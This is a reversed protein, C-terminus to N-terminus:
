QGITRIIYTRGHILRYIFILFNIILIGIIGLLSFSYGVYAPIFLKKSKLSEVFCLRSKKTDGSLFYMVGLRFYGVHVYNYRLFLDYHKKFIYEMDKIKIFKDTLTKTANYSHFYYNFLPEYVFDIDFGAKCIRIWMEWDESYKMKEDRPGVIDIVERKMLVSSNSYIPNRLLIEPFIIEKKIPNYTSFCKGKNNILNAGCSVLGINKKQSNSFLYLQKELKEPLWEDDHDIFAVYEGKAKEIGVNKPQAPGGSNQSTKFLKIRGDQKIFMNVLEVTNDFSCDDIILLEWNAFTQNLVSSITRKIFFSSNYTPIIISVKPAM